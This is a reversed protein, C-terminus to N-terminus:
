WFVSFLTIILTFICVESHLLMREDFGIATSCGAAAIDSVSETPFYKSFVMFYNFLISFSKLSFWGFWRRFYFCSLVVLLGQLKATTCSGILLLSFYVIFFRYTISAHVLLINNKVCWLILCLRFFAILSSKVRFAVMSKFVLLNRKVCWCWSFLTRTPGVLVYSSQRGLINRKQTPGQVLWRQYCIKFFCKM